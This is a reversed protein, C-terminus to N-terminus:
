RGMGRLKGLVFSSFEVSKDSVSKLNAYCLGCPSIIKKADGSFSKVREAAVGKALEEFNARVGGGGGCCLAGERNFRPEIIKGGLMMIVERPEDYIGSYRGLHCPDHYSVVERDKEDGKYRLGKEKIRKCIVVTAHECPIDWDRVLKPYVDNFTHLCSPCNTVIRQIGNSRFLKLNKEALKKVDKRYGANLIPLGCCVEKEPLMVFDIGLRNFIEKYNELNETLVGKTLCGPYYLIKEGGIWSFVGMVFFRWFVWAGFWWVV